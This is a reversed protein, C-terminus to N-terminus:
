NHTYWLQIAIMGKQESEQSASLSVGRGSYKVRTRAKSSKVFGLETKLQEASSPFSSGPSQIRSCSAGDDSPKSRKSPSGEKLGGASSRKARSLALNRRGANSPNNEQKKGFATRKMDPQSKREPESVDSDADSQRGSGKPKSYKEDEGESSSIPDAGEDVAQALKERQRGDITKLLHGPNDSYSM